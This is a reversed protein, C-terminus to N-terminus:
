VFKFVGSTFPNNFIHEGAFILAEGQKHSLCIVFAIVRHNLQLHELLVDAVLKIYPAYIVIPITHDFTPPGYSERNELNRVTIESSLPM